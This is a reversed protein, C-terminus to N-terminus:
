IIQLTQATKFFISLPTPPYVCTVSFTGSASCQILTITRSHPTITPLGSSPAHLYAPTIAHTKVAQLSRSPHPLRSIYTMGTGSMVHLKDTFNVKSVRHVPRIGPPHSVQQIDFLVFGSQCPQDYGLHGFALCRPCGAQTRISVERRRCGPWGGISFITMVNGADSDLGPAGPM